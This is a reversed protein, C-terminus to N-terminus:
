MDLEDVIALMNTDAGTLVPLFALSAEPGGEWLVLDGEGAGIYDFSVVLTGEKETDRPDIIEMVRLKKGKLAPLTINLVVNGRVRGMWM